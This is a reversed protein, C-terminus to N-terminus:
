FAEDETLAAQIQASRKASYRRSGQGRLNYPRKTGQILEDAPPYGRVKATMKTRRAYIMSFSTRATKHTVHCFFDEEEIQCAELVKIARDAAAEPHEELVYGTFGLSSNTDHFHM